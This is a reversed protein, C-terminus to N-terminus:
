DETITLTGAAITPAPDSANVTKNPTVLGWYLLNGASVADFIGLAVILGWAGSPAPFTIVGNNSTQGGTGTSAVTTGAGQTGAWNALSSAVAVRSYNGGSVEVGGGADTPATTYLGVYM